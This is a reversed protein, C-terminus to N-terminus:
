GRYYEPTTVYWDSDFDSVGFRTPWAFGVPVIIADNAVDLTCESITMNATHCRVMIDIPATPTDLRNYLFEVFTEGNEFETTFYLKGGDLGHDGTATDLRGAPALLCFSDLDLNGALLLRVSCSNGCQIETQMATRNTIGYGNAGAVYLNDVLVTDGLEGIIEDTKIVISPITNSLWYLNNVAIWGKAGFDETTLDDTLTLENGGSFASQPNNMNYTTTKNLRTQVIKINTLPANYGIAVEPKDTTTNAALYHGVHLGEAALPNPRARLKGTSDFIVNHGSIKLSSEFLDLPSNNEWLLPMIYYNLAVFSPSHVLHYPIGLSQYWNLEGNEYPAISEGTSILAQNMFLLLDTRAGTSYTIVPSVVCTATSLAMYRLDDSLENAEEDFWPDSSDFYWYGDGANYTCPIILKRNGNNFMFYQDEMTPGAIYAGDTFMFRGGPTIIFNYASWNVDGPNDQRWGIGTSGTPSEAIDLYECLGPHSSALSICDDETPLTAGGAQLWAFTPRFSWIFDSGEAESNTNAELELATFIEDVSTTAALTAITFGDLSVLKMEEGPYFDTHQDMSLATQQILPSALLSTVSRTSITVKRGGMGVESIVGAYIRRPTQWIGLGNTEVLYLCVWRGAHNWHGGLVVDPGRGSMQPPIANYTAYTGERFASYLSRTVTMATGTDVSDVSITERPLYLVDAAMFAGTDAVTLTTSAYTLVETMYSYTSEIRNAGFFATHDDTNIFDFAADAVRGFGGTADLTQSISPVSSMCDRFTGGDADFLAFLSAADADKIGLTPWVPCGHIALVYAKNKRYLM